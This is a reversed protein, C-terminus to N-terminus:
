KIKPKKFNFVKIDLKKIGLEQFQIEQYRTRQDGLTKINLKKFNLKKIEKQKNICIDPFDGPEPSCFLVGAGFAGAAGPTVVRDLDLSRGLGFGRGPPGVVCGPPGRCVCVGLPFGM